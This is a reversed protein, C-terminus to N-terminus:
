SRHLDLVEVFHHLLLLLLHVRSELVDRLELVFPVRLLLELHHLVVVPLLGTFVGEFAPFHWPLVFLGPLPVINGPDLKFFFVLLSVM